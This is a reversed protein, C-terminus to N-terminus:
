TSVVCDATIITIIEYITTITNVIQSAVTAVIDYMAAQTIIAQYM